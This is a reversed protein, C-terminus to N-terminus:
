VSGVSGDASFLFNHQFGPHLSSKKVPNQVPGVGTEKPHRVPLILQLTTSGRFVETGLASQLEVHKVM